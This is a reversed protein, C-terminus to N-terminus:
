RLGPPPARNQLGNPSVINASQILPVLLVNAGNLDILRNAGGGVVPRGTTAGLTAPRAGIGQGGGQDLPAADGANVTGLQASGAAGGGAPVENFGSSQEGANAAANAAAVQTNPGGGGGSPNAAGGLPYGAQTGSGKALSDGSYALGHPIGLDPVGNLSAHQISQALHGFDDDNLAGSDGSSFANAKLQGFQGAGIAHQEGNKESLIIQGSYVVCRLEATDDHNVKCAFDTGRVSITAVPTDLEYSDKSFSGTTFRFIGKIANVTMKAVSPRPDYIFRTLRVSSNEGLQFNTGDFFVIDSASNPMTTILEDLHVDDKVALHRVFELYNGLVQEVVIATRGVTDPPQASASSFYGLPLVALLALPRM